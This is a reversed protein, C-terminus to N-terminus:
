TIYILYEVSTLFFFALSSFLVLLTSVPNTIPVSTPTVNTTVGCNAGTTSPQAVVVQVPSGSTTSSSNTTFTPQHQSSSSTPVVNVSKVMTTPTLSFITEQEHHQDQHTTASVSNMDQAINHVKSSSSCRTSITANTATTTTTEPTTTTTMTIMPTQQFNTDTSLSSLQATADSSTVTPSTTTQQRTPSQQQVYSMNAISSSCNENLATGTSSSHITPQPVQKLVQGREHNIPSSSASNVPKGALGSAIDQTKSASPALAQTLATSKQQQHERSLDQQLKFNQLIATSESFRSSSSM